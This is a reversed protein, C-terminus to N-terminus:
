LQSLVIISSSSTETSDRRNVDAPSRHSESESTSDKQKTLCVKADSESDEISCNSGKITSSYIPLPGNNLTEDNIVSWEDNLYSSELENISDDPDNM